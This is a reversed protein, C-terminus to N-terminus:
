HYKVIIDTHIGILMQSHILAEGYHAVESERWHRGVRNGVAALRSFTTLSTGAASQRTALVYQSRPPHAPHFQM